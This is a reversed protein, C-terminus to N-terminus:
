KEFVQRTMQARNSSKSTGCLRIGRPKEDLCLRRQILNHLSDISDSLNCVSCGIGVRYRLIYLAHAQWDSELLNLPQCSLYVVGLHVFRRDINRVLPGRGPECLCTRHLLQGLFCHLSRDREWVREEELFFVRIHDAWTAGLNQTTVFLIVHM